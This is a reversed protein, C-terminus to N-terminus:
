ATCTCHAAFKSHTTHAGLTAPETCLSQCRSCSLVPDTLLLLFTRTAQQLCIAKRTMCRTCHTCHTCHATDAAIATHLTHLSQLTHHTGNKCHKCHTCCTCCAPLLKLTFPRASWHRRWAFSLPPISTAAMRCPQWNASSPTQSKCIACHACCPTARLSENQRAEAATYPKSHYERCSLRSDLLLRTPDSKKCLLACCQPQTRPTYQSGCPM